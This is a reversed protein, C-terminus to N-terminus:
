SPSLNPLCSAVQVAVLLAPLVTATALLLGFPVDLCPCIQSVFVAVTALCGFPFTRREEASIRNLFFVLFFNRFPIICCCFTSSHLAGGSAKGLLVVGGAWKLYYIEKYLPSDM